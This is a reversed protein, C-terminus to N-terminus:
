KTWEMDQIMYRQDVRPNFTLDEDVAYIDGQQWLPVWAAEEVAMHQLEDYYEKREDPDMIPSVEKIMEEMESPASFISSASDALFLSEFTNSPVFQTGFSSIAMDEIDGEEIKSIYTVYENVNVEVDIGIEGLQAAIAQAVESDMPYRGNTTELTLSISEPEVGEEELLELAKDPDYGYDETEVYGENVESLPGTMKTGHGNLVNELIDDVDVAYNVAQRVKKDQLPGEYDNNLALYFIRASSVSEIKGNESSEIEDISDVPINNFLDVEGSLFAALRSSYEPMVKFEVDKIQPEGDWYDDFAEMKFNQDREWDVFQYPGTGIPEEAADEGLEEMHNPEMLILNDALRTILDPFPENTIIQFNYDDEIKVEEIPLFYNRYGSDNDEDLVYDINFKVTEATLEEGNHFTVGERLTFNWTSDDVNEWDTALFPIVEGNDDRGILPEYISKLHLDKVFNMDINPILMSPSAEIGIVLDTRKESDSEEADSSDNNSDGATGETCAAVFILMFTCIFLLGFKRM